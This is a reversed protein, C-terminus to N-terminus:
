DRSALGLAWKAVEQIGNLIDCQLGVPDDNHYEARLTSGIQSDKDLTWGKPLPELENPPYEELFTIYASAQGPTGIGWTHGSCCYLTEYGNENLIKITPILNEDIDIVTGSCNKVPCENEDDLHAFSRHDFVQWCGFCVLM